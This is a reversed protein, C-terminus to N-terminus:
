RQLYYYRSSTVVGRRVALEDKTYAIGTPNSPSNIILVRTKDTIAAELQAPTMKFQNSFDAKVIVPKGDTLLVMDPYSVWYPAPIIVEDGPNVLASLLNYISHKAGSSVLIQNLQYSLNNERAFKDVVAQKLAKIGDIPTYKTHGAHIAKVAAEKIYNPTDFDPEGM